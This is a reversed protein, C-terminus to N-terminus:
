LPSAHTNRERFAWSSLMRLFASATGDNGSELMYFLGHQANVLPALEKLILRSVTELRADSVGTLLLADPFREPHAALAELVHTGAPAATM